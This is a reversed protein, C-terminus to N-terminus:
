ILDVKGITSPMMLAVQQKAENKSLPRENHYVSKKATKLKLTPKPVPVNYTVTQQDGGGENALIGIGVGAVAPIVLAPGM